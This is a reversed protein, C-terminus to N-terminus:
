DTWPLVKTIVVGREGADFDVSSGNSLFASCTASNCSVSRFRAGVLLARAKARDTPTKPTGAFHRAFGEESSVAEEFVRAFAKFLGPPVNDLHAYAPDGPPPCPGEKAQALVVPGIASDQRYGRQQWDEPVKSTWGSVRVYDNDFNTRGYVVPLAIKGAPDPFIEQEFIECVPLESSGPYRAFYHTRKDKDQCIRFVFAGKKEAFVALEPPLDSGDTSYFKGNDGSQTWVIGYGGGFRCIDLAQLSGPLIPPPPAALVPQSLLLCPLASIFLVSWRLRRGVM